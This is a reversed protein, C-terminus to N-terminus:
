IRIMHVGVFKTDYGCSFQTNNHVGFVRTDYALTWKQTDIARTRMKMLGPAADRILCM